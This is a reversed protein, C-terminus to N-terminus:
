KNEVKALLTEEFAKGSEFGGLPHGLQWPRNHGGDSEVWRDLVEQPAMQGDARFGYFSPSM